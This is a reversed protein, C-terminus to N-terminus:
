GSGRVVSRQRYDGSKYVSASATNVDAEHTVNTVTGSEGIFQDAQVQGTLFGTGSFAFYSVAEAAGHTLESDATTDEDVYIRVSSDGLSDFRLGAADLGNYTALLALIGTPTSDFSDMFDLMVGSDDFNASTVFAEYEVVGLFVAAM